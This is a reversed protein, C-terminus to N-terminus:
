FEKKKMVRLSYFYSIFFEVALVAVFAALLVGGSIGELWHLIDVANVSVFSLLQLALIAAVALAAFVAMIIVRSNESGFRLRLPIMLMILMGAVAVFLLSSILFPEEGAMIRGQYLVFGIVVSVIWGALACLLCFIYKEKVYTNRKIPLTMLFGMGGGFDDYSITGVGAFSLVIILYVSFFSSLSGSKVTFLTYIIGILAVVLYVSINCSIIALDKKLLGKM